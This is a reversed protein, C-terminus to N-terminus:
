SVGRGWFRTRAKRFHEREKSQHEARHLLNSSDAERCGFGSCLEQELLDHNGKLCLLDLQVGLPANPIV